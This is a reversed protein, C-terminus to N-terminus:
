NILKVIKAKLYFTATGIVKGSNIPYFQLMMSDDTILISNELEQTLMVNDLLLEQVPNGRAEEPIESIIDLKSTAMKLDCNIEIWTLLESYFKADLLYQNGSHGIFDKSLSKIISKTSTTLIFKKNIKEGTKKSLEFFRLLSTFDLIYNEYELLKINPYSSPSYQMLGKRDYELNYYARIYHKSYEGVVIETFSLRESYYENIMKDPDYARNGGIEKFFDLINGEKIYKEANFSEMSIQSFADKNEVEEIIEDHLSLYKNMIRKVVIEKEPKGFAGSFSIKDGVKKGLLQKYKGNIDTIEIFSKSTKSEYKVFYGKEIAEFNKLTGEPCKVCALFYDTRAQSNSKEIAQNYYMELGKLQYNNQMLVEAISRANAYSNFKIGSALTYLKIFQDERPDDIENLAVAYNALIFENTDDKNFYEECILIIDNWQFLHRKLEVELQLLNPQFSFNKRWNTLESLLEKNNTKSSYLAKIYKFLYKSEKDFILFEKYVNIAKQHEELDLYVQALSIQVYPENINGGGWINDLVKVTNTDKNGNYVKLIEILLNKSDVDEFKKNATFEEVPIRSILNLDNLFEIIAYIHVLYNTVDKIVNLFDRATIIYNEVDNLKSNCVLKLSLIEATKENANTLIEVAETIEGILQLSNAVILTDYPEKKEMLVYHEKMKYVSDKRGELLYHVYSNLFKLNSHKDEIESNAIAELYNNQIEFIPTLIESPVSIQKNFDIFLNVVISCACNVLHGYVRFNEFTIPELNLDNANLLINYTTFAEALDLYTGKQISRIHILAKFDLDTIVISPVEALAESLQNTDKILSKIAWAISNYKDKLILKDALSRADEYEDIRFYAYCANEQNERSKDNLNFANIYAKQWENKFKPMYKLCQGKLTELSARMEDSPTFSYNEFSAELATLNSFATIPKFSKLNTKYQEIQRTYELGLESLSVRNLEDKITDITTKFGLLIEKYRSEDRVEKLYSYAAPHKVIKSEFIEFFHKYDGSIEQNRLDSNPNHSAKEFIAKIKGREIERIAPNSCFEKLSEEFAKKIQASVESSIFIKRGEIVIGAGLSLGFSALGELIAM